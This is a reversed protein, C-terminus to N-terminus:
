LNWAGEIAKVGSTMVLIKSPRNTFQRPDLCVVSYQPKYEVIGCRSVALWLKHPPSWMVHEKRWPPGRVMALELLALFLWSAPWRNWKTRSVVIWMWWNWCLLRSELGEL